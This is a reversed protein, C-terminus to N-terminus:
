TEILIWKQVSTASAQGILTRYIYGSNVLSVAPSSTAILEIDLWPKMIFRWCCHCQNLLEKVSDMSRLLLMNVFQDGSKAYIYNVFNVCTKVSVTDQSSLTTAWRTRSTSAAGPISEAETGWDLPQTLSPPTPAWWLLHCGRGWGTISLTVMWSLTLSDTYRSRMSRWSCCFRFILSPQYFIHWTEGRFPM